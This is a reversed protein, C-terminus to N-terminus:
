KLEINDILRTKSLCIAGAILDGRDVRKKIKFTLPDVIEIYDIRIAPRVLISRRLAKKILAARREGGLVMRRGQRLARSLVTADQRELASLYRNRSSMALGDFERVIPCVRILVPFNLDQVLRKIVAVQQADKSGFYAKDPQALHFLKSVVTAVGDFHGPRSAGCLVSGIPGAKVTTQFESPYFDKVAPIFVIDCEGKLRKLDVGIDRPYKKYDEGRAFQLPNVFISVIVRENEQRAKRVLSLHGEHLAGMTPVLGISVGKKRLFSTEKQLALSRRVIKM